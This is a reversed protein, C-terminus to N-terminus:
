SEDCEFRLPMESLDYERRPLVESADYDRQKVSM